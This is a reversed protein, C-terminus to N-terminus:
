VVQRSFSPQLSDMSWCKLSAQNEKCDQRGFPPWTVLLKQVAMDKEVKFLTVTKWLIPPPWSGGLFLQILGVFWVSPGIWGYWSSIHPSVLHNYTSQSSVTQLSACHVNMEIQTHKGDMPHIRRPSAAHINFFSWGCHIFVKIEKNKLNTLMMTIITYLSVGLWYIVLYLNYM